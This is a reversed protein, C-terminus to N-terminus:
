SRSKKPFFWGVGFSLALTDSPNNRAFVTTLVTVVVTPGDGTSFTAAKVGVKIQSTRLTNWSDIDFYDIDDLSIGGTRFFGFLAPGVAFRQHFAWMGEASFAVEDSPVKAGTPSRRNPLRYFYWAEASATYWGKGAQDTRGISTGLGVDSQGDGLTTIRNRTDAYAEGSRFAGSLSWSFPNGYLEDILRGKIVGGIDGLGSTTDCWDGPRDLMCTESSPDNARVNEYPLKLELEVGPAVGATWVVTVGSATLATDLPEMFSDSRYNRYRFYDLGVYVNHEGANLTWPGGGAEAPAGLLLALLIM